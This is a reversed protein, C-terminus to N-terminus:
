NKKSNAHQATVTPKIIKKSFITEINKIVLIYIKPVLSFYTKKKTYVLIYNKKTVHSFYLKLTLYYIYETIFSFILTDLFFNSYIQTGVHVFSFHDISFINTVILV